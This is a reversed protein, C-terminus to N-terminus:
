NLISPINLKFPPIDVNFKKTSTFNIMIYTGIMSAIPSTILCESKYIHTEGPKVVPKKGVVGDGNIYQTNSTTETIKWHRSLLQVVDKSQNEITITYIFGHHLINDKPFSGKFKTEVSVRIGRTIQQIM